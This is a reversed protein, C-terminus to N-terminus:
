ETRFLYMKFSHEAWIIEWYNRDKYGKSTTYNHSSMSQLPMGTHMCSTSMDRYLYILTCLNRDRQSEVNNRREKEKEKIFM